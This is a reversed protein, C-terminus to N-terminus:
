PTVGSIGLEGGLNKGNLAYVRMHYPSGPISSAGETNQVVGSIAWDAASALHGGWALVATSASAVFTLTINNSSRGSNFDGVYTYGSGGILNGNFMLFIGAAQPVLYNTVRVNDAPIPYSSTPSSCGPVGSCADVAPQLPNPDFSDLYDYAHVGGDTTDWQISTTYTNGPVLGSIVLRFPVTDGEAYHGSKRTIAAGTWASGTCQRPATAGGNACQQLNAKQAFANGGCLLLAVAALLGLWEKTPMKSM